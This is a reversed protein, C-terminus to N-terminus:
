LGWRRRHGRANIHSRPGDGPHRGRGISGLNGSPPEAEPQPPQAQQKWVAELRDIRAALMEVKETLKAVKMWDFTMWDFKKMNMDEAVHELRGFTTKEVRRRIM